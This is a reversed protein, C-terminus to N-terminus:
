SKSKIDEYDDYKEFVHQVYSCEAKIKFNEKRAKEVLQDLLKRGVGEGKLEDSVKTHKVTILNENDRNFAMEAEPENENGVFVKGKHQKEKIEIDM